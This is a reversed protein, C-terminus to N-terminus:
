VSQKESVEAPISNAKDRQTAVRMACPWGFSALFNSYVLRKRVTVAEQMVVNNNCCFATEIECVNKCSGRHVSKNIM